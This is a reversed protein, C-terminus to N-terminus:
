GDVAVYPVMGMFVYTVCHTCAELGRHDKNTTDEVVAPSATPLMLVDDRPQESEAVTYSVVSTPDEYKKGGLAAAAGTTDADPIV